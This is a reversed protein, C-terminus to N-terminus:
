DPAEYDDTPKPLVRRIIDPLSFGGDPKPVAAEPVKGNLYEMVKLSVKYALNQEDLSAGEKVGATLIKKWLKVSDPELHGILQNIRAKTKKAGVGLKNGKQFPM